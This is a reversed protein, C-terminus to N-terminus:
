KRGIDQSLVATMNWAVRLGVAIESSFAIAQLSFPYRCVLFINLVDPSTRKWFLCVANPHVFVHQRFDPLVSLGRRGTM